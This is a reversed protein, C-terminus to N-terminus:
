LLDSKQCRNRSLKFSKIKHNLTKLNNCDGALIYVFIKAIVLKNERKEILHKKINFDM